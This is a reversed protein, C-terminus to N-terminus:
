IYVCVCVNMYVPAPVPHIKPITESLGKTLKWNRYSNAKPRSENRREGKEARMNPKWQSIWKLKETSASIMEDRFHVKQWVNYLTIRVWVSGVSGFCSFSICVTPMKYKEVRCSNGYYKNLVNMQHVMFHLAGIQQTCIIYRVDM